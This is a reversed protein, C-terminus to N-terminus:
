RRLNRPPKCSSRGLLRLRESGSGQLIEQWPRRFNQGLERPEELPRRRAERKAAVAQQERAKGQRREQTAPPPEVRDARSQPIQGSRCASKSKCVGREASHPLRM